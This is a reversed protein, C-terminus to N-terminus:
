ITNLEFVVEMNEFGSVEGLGGVKHDRILDLLRVRPFRNDTEETWRFFAM